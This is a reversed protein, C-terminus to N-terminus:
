WNLVIIALLSICVCIAGSAAEIDLTIKNTLNSEIFQIAKSLSQWNMTIGGISM